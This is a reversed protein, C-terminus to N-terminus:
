RHHCRCGCNRDLGSAHCYWPCTCAAQVGVWGDLDKTIVDIAAKYRDFVKVLKPLLKRLMMRYRALDELAAREPTGEPAPIKM